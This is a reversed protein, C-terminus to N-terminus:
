DRLDLSRVYARFEDADESELGLAVNAKLWGLRTGADHRVGEFQYGFVPQEDMLTRLADTLQIEGGAGRPTAELIDFIKPTLVYRGLVALESPAEDVSPKEVVDEIEVLRGEERVPKVIGYRSVDRRDVRQVAVVSGRHATYQDILQRTVPPGGPNVMVDDSLLVAFPEEGVIEKAMLVAHGLGLQEKQHVFAIPSIETIRRVSRLMEIDGREELWRELTPNADFHDEIASRGTAIVIVIQEIGSAVAEEVAYQIIPRDVLPLVEKPIAKTAPLFRTGFGAAPLVAKRVRM